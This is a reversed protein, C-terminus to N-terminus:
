QDTKYVMKSLGSEKIFNSLRKVVPDDAGKQDCASAFIAKSPYLRGVFCTLLDEDRADRVYCYDAVLLPVERSHNPLNHHPANQRKASVCWKCWSRYPLHTLWHLAVEIATPQSPSPIGVPAQAIVPEEAGIRDDSDLRVEGGDVLDRSAVAPEVDEDGWGEDPGFIDAAASEDDFNSPPSIACAFNLAGAAYFAVVESPLM